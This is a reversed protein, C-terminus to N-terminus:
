EGESTAVEAQHVADELAAMDRRLRFMAERFAGDDAGLEALGRVARTGAELGDLAELITETMM